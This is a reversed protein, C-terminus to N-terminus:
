LLEVGFFPVLYCRREPMRGNREVECMGGSICLEEDVQASGSAIAAGYVGAVPLLALIAIINYIGFLKSWLIVHVKEEYQAVLTVPVAIVNFTAFAVIAPLLWSQEIFKGGFVVQVIEAHYATVYALLPWQM